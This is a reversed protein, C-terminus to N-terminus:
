EENNEEKNAIETAEETEDFHELNHHHTPDDCNDHDHVESDEHEIDENAVPNELDEFSSETTIAFDLLFDLVKRELLKSVIQENELIKKSATKIDLNQYYKEALNEVDYEEIEINEKNAIKEKIFSWKVLKKSLPELDKAVNFLKQQDIEKKKDNYGLVDAALKISTSYVMHQPVDFDNIETLKEIIQDEMKMRSKENWEDQIEYGLEERLEEYTTLRGQTINSILESNLEAPINQTISLVKVSYNTDPSHNDYKHPNFIFSDGITKGILNEKLEKIVTDSKLYVQTEESKGLIPVLTEKDLEDLKIKVLCDENEITQVEEFKGYSYRITEIRKDIEEDSVSHIPEFIQIGKYEGLDFEPYAFYHYTITAGNNDKDINHINPEGIVKLENEKVYNNFIEAAYEKLSDEEIEKGYLRKVVNIPVKGKRFGKLNINPLINLYAKELRDQIEDNTLVVLMEKKCEGLDKITKEL